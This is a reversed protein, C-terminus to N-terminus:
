LPLPRLDSTAFAPPWVVERDRPAVWEWIVSQARENVGQDTLALGSGNPLGGEPIRVARAAAAVAEASLGGAAPLVDRFLALAGAFGALAAAPMGAGFRERYTDRAWRLEEAAEPRLASPDLIDGDPKDSAFLGVADAGLEDGFQPHCYSSSTGISAVLPVKRRVMERRLAVGDDLYAVVVLVDTKAAAIRRAMRAADFGRPEYPADLVLRGPGAAIQELAGTAVGHGYVDDVYAVAYRLAAPRPVPGPLRPLLRERMFRVAAMGLSRGTPSVRFFRGGGTVDDPMEGVAGTEWLVVDRDLAVKAAASSITSGYSGLIVSAGRDALDRVAPGAGDSSATPVLDLRIPRGDIGGRRNALEAALGVGRYEETGGTGQSGNTPYVAGIVVPEPGGSCGGALLLAVLLIAALRRPAHM